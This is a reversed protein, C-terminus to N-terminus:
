VNYQFVKTLVEPLIDEVENISVYYSNTNLRCVLTQCVSWFDVFMIESLQEFLLQCRENKDGSRSLQQIESLLAHLGPTEKEKVKLTQDM